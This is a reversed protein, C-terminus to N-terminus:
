RQQEREQPPDQAAVARVELRHRLLVAHRAEAVELEVEHRAVRGLLAAEEVALLLGLLVAGAVVGVSGEERPVSRRGAVPVADQARPQFVVRVRLEHRGPRRVARADVGRARHARRDAVHAARARRPLAALVEPVFGAQHQHAQALDDVVLAARAGDGALRRELVHGVLDNRHLVFVQDIRPEEEGERAVEVAVLAELGVVDVYRRGQHPASSHAVTQASVVLPFASAPSSQLKAQRAM